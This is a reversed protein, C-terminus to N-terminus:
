GPWPHPCKRHIGWRAERWSLYYRMPKKVVLTFIVSSPDILSMLASSVDSQADLSASLAPFGRCVRSALAGTCRSTPAMGRSRFPANVHSTKGDALALAIRLKSGASGPWNGDQAPANVSESM